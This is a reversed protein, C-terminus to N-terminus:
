SKPPTKKPKSQKAQKKVKQFVGETIRRSEKQVADKRYQEQKDKQATAFYLFLADDRKAKKAQVDM